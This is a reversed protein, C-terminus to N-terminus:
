GSARSAARLPCREGLGSRVHLRFKGAAPTGSLTRLIELAKPTNLDDSLAAAFNEREIGSALDTERAAINLRHAFQAATDMEAPSWEWAQRYHHSLLYVRIADASYTKLLQRLFVMNGLSKSMKEGDMRVM